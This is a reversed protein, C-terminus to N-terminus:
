KQALAEAEAILHIAYSLGAEAVGVPRPNNLPKGLHETPPDFSTKFRDDHVRLLLMVPRLVTMNAIGAEDHALVVEKQGVPKFTVSTIKNGLGAPQEGFTIGGTLRHEIVSPIGHEDANRAQHLYNLLPDKKRFQKKAGFWQRSKPESKAGQELITFISNHASLYDTWVPELEQLTTANRIAELATAARQLRMKVKTIAELKM